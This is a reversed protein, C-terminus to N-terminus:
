LVTTQYKVGSCNEPPAHVSGKDSYRKDELSRQMEKKPIGIM